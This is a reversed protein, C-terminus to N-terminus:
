DQRSSRRTKGKKIRNVLATIRQSIRSESVDFVAGIEKLSYGEHLYLYLIKDELPTCHKKLLDFVIVRDEPSFRCTDSVDLDIADKIRKMPMVESDLFDYLAHKILQHKAKGELIRIIYSAAFDDALHSFRSFEAERRAKDYLTVLDHRM